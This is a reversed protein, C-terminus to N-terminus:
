FCSQWSLMCDQISIFDPSWAHLAARIVAAYAFFVFPIFLVMLWFEPDSFWDKIVRAFINRFAKLMSRM